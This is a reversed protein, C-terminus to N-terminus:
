RLKYIAEQLYDKLFGKITNFIIKKVFPSIHMTHHNSFFGM